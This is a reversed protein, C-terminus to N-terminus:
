QPGLSVSLSTLIAFSIEVFVFFMGMVFPRLLFSFVKKAFTQYLYFRESILDTRDTPQKITVM